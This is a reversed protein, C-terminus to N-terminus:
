RDPVGCVFSLEEAKEVLSLTMFNVAKTEGWLSPFRIEKEIVSCV